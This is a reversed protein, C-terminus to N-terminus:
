MSNRVGPIMQMFAKKPPEHDPIAIIESRSRWTISRKRAAGADRSAIMREWTTRAPTVATSCAIM